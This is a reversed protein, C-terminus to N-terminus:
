AGYIAFAEKLQTVNMGSDILLHALIRSKRASLFGSLIFGHEILYSESGPYGYTNKLTTGSGTRSSVIVPIGKKIALELKETANMSLHGVGSANVVIARPGMSIVPDVWDGEDAFPSEMIPIKISGPAPLPLPDHAKLPEFFVHLKREAIRGIPGWGPSQFTWVGTSNTKAVTRAAHVADDLVVLVGLGRASDSAATVVASMLNGAGDPSLLNPSRMAGTLVIPESHDWILDLLFASEELTDTGHTLVIGDAGERVAQDAFKYADLIDEVVISPSAVNKISQSKIEAIEALEPVASVLDEAGLKPKVPDTSSASSMAITGGLAGVYVKSM